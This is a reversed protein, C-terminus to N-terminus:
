AGVIVAPFTFPEALPEITEPAIAALLPKMRM